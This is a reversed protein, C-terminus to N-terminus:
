TLILSAPNAAAIASWAEKIATAELLSGGITGYSKGNAAVVMKAGNHRPSSGELMVISALVFPSGNELLECMVEALYNNDYMAPTEKLKVTNRKDRPILAPLQCFVFWNADLKNIITIERVKEYATGVIPDHREPLDM